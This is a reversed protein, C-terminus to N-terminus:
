FLGTPLARIPLGLGWVFIAMVALSLVVALVAVSKARAPEGAFNSLTVAAIIAAIVGLSELAAAFVLVSASVLTLPRWEIRELPGGPSILGIVSILAGLGVLLKCMLLPFYGEGMEAATGVNLDRGVWLGLLGVSAFVVGAVFDQNAARM